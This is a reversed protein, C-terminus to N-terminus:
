LQRYRVERLLKAPAVPKHYPHSTAQAARAGLGNGGMTRGMPSALKVPIAQVPM